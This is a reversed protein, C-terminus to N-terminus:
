KFSPPEKALVCLQLTEDCKIALDPGIGSGTPRNKSTDPDPSCLTPDLVNKDTDFCSIAPWLGVVHYQSTCPAGAGGDPLGQTRTLTLDAVLQTGPSAPTNYFRVGSWQYKMYLAPVAPEDDGADPATEPKAPVFALDQEIANPSDVTCFNDGGPEPTAWKGLAYPLRNNSTDKGGHDDIATQLDIPQMGLSGKNPDLNSKDDLADNYAEVGIQEGHMGCPDAGMPTYVAAFPGHGATCKIRPQDSCSAALGVLAGAAALGSLYFVLSRKDM